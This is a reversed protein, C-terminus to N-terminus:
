RGNEQRLTEEDRRWECWFEAREAEREVTCLCCLDGEGNNSDNPKGCLRCIDSNPKRMRDELRKEESRGSQKELPNHYGCEM